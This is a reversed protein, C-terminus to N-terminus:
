MMGGGRPVFPRARKPRNVIDLSVAAVPWPGPLKLYGHLDPLAMVESDMVIPRTTRRRDMTMRDARDDAGMSAGEHAEDLDAQGLSESLWKATEPDMARLLLRTHLGNVLGSAIDRGYKGRLDGITQLGLVPCAGHKRGRMLLRPLTELHDLSAIEDLLFWVRRTLSAPLSLLSACALDFWLTLLPRLLQYTDETCALFVWSDSDQSLWRRISFGDSGSPDRLYKFGGVRVAATARISEGLKSVKPNMAPGAPTGAVLPGLEDLPASTILRYFEANSTHGEEALKEAVAAILARPGERWIADQVPEPPILSAAVLQYHADSTVESWFHWPPCRADLPNLIIDKGERYYHEIYEGSLDVVIARQQRERVQDLIEQGAVTKGTGTAGNLLVGYPETGAVMPVGGITFPSAKGAKVVMRALTAGDTLVAGRLHEDAGLRGGRVHLLYSIGSVLLVATWVGSFLTPAVARGFSAQYVQKRYFDYMGRNPHEGKKGEWEYISTTKGLFPHGSLYAAKGYWVVYTRQPEDLFLHSWGIIALIATPLGVYVTLKGVNQLWMEMQQSTVEAGRVFKSTKM